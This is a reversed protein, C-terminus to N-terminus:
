MPEGLEYHAHVLGSWKDQERLILEAFERVAGNGGPHKAIFHALPRVEESADAPVASLGALKLCPIDPVDDGMYAVEEPRMGNEAILAQFADGKFAKGQLVAGIGLEKCRAATQASNRGTLVAVRIGASMLMKVGLGDRTYFRKVAEGSAGTWISGDTLVGDVDIVVLRIALARERLSKQM